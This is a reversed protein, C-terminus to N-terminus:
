DISPERGGAIVVKHFWSVVGDMRLMLRGVNPCCVKRRPSKLLFGRMLALLYGMRRVKRRTCCLEGVVSDPWPKRTPVGDHPEL